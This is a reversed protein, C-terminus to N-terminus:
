AFSFGTRSVVKSRAELAIQVCLLFDKNPPRIARVLSSYFLIPFVCSIIKILKDTDGSTHCVYPLRIIEWLNGTQSNWIERAVVM